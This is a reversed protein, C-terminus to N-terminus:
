RFSILNEWIQKIKSYSEPSIGNCWQNPFAERDHLYQEFTLWKTETIEHDTFDLMMSAPNVKLAYNKYFHKHPEYIGEEVLKLEEPAVELGVEEHLEKLATTEFSLGSPVHGGFYTQWKNPNISEPSRLSCLISGRDDVIWIDVVGHYYDPFPEALAVSRPQSAVENESADFCALLEESM